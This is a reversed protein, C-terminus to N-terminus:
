MAARRARYAAIVPPSAGATRALDRAREVTDANANIVMGLLTLGDTTVGLSVGMEFETRYEGEGAVLLMAWIELKWDDQLDPRDLLRHLRELAEAGNGKAWLTAATNLEIVPKSKEDVNAAAQQLHRMAGDPKNSLLLAVGWNSQTQWHTDGRSVAKRFYYAATQGAALTLCAEGAAVLLERRNPALVCAREIHARGEQLRGFHYLDAQGVIALIDPHNPGDSLAQQLLPAAAERDGTKRLHFDALKAKGLPYDDVRSGREYLDLAREDDNMALDQFNAYSALAWAPASDGWIAFARVFLREAETVDRLDAWQREALNM